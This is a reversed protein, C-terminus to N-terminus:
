LAQLYIAKKAGYFGDAVDVNWFRRRCFDNSLTFDFAAASFFQAHPLVLATMYIIAKGFVEKKQKFFITQREAVTQEAFHQEAVIEKIFLQLTPELNSLFIWMKGTTQM